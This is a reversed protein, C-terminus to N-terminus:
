GTIVGGIVTVGWAETVADSPLAQVLETHYQATFTYTGSVPSAPMTVIDTSNGPGVSYKYYFYGDSAFFWNTGSLDISSLYANQMAITPAAVINNSADYFAPVITMRVYAATDGKNKVSPNRGAMVVEGSVAAETYTNTVPASKRTLWAVTPIAASILIVATLASILIVKGKRSNINFIKKM